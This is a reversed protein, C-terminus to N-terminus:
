RRIGDAEGPHVAQEGGRQHARASGSRGGVTAGPPSREAPPVGSTPATTARAMLRGKAAVLPNAMASEGLVELITAEDLGSARTLAMMEALSGVINGMMVQLMLKRPRRRRPHTRRAMPPPGHRRTRPAARPTTPPNPDAASSSSPETAATAGAAPSPPPSSAAAPGDAGASTQATARLVAAGVAEGTHADVTSCDVYTAPGRDLPSQRHGRCRQRPRGDGCGQRRPPRRAHRLCRRM